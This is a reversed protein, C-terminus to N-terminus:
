PQCKIGRHLKMPRELGLRVRDMAWDITRGCPKPIAIVAKNGDGTITEGDCAIAIVAVYAAIRQRAPSATAVTPVEQLRLAKRSDIHDCTKPQNM